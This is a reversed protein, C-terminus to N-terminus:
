RAIKENKSSRLIMVYVCLLLGGGAYLFLLTLSYYKYFFIALSTGMVTALPLLFSLITVSKSVMETESYLIHKESIFGKNIFISIDFKM